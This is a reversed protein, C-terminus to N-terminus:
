DLNVRVESHVVDVFYVLCAVPQVEVVRSLEERCDVLDNRFYGVSLYIIIPKPEKQKEAKTLSHKSM